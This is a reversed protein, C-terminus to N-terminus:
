LERPSQARPARMRCRLQKTYFASHSDRGDRRVVMDYWCTSIFVVRSPTSADEAGFPRLVIAARTTPAATKAVTPATAEVREDAEVESSSAVGGGAPTFWRPMSVVLDRPSSSRTLKSKM